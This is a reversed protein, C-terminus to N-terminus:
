NARRRLFAPIELDDDVQSEDASGEYAERLRQPEDEVPKPVARVPTESRPREIRISRTAPASPESAFSPQGGFDPELKVDVEEEPEKRSRAVGALRELFGVKRKQTEIGAAPAEGGAKAKIERQAVVPLEELSPM